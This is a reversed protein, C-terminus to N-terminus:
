YLLGTGPWYIVRDLFVLHIVGLSHYEFNVELRCVCVCVMWM